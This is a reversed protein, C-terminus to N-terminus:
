FLHRSCLFPCHIWPKATITYSQEGTVKPQKRRGPNELPHLNTEQSPLNPELAPLNIEPDTQIIKSRPTSRACTRSGNASHTCSTTDPVRGRLPYWQFLSSKLDTINIEVQRSSVGFNQYLSIKLELMFMNASLLLDKIDLFRDQGIKQMIM